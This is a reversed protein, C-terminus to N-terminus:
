VFVLLVIINDINIISNFNKVISIVTKDTVKICLIYLIYAIQYITCIHLMNKLVSEM